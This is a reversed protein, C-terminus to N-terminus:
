YQADDQDYIIKTASRREAGDQKWAIMAQLGTLRFLLIIDYDIPYFTGRGFYKPQRPLPLHSLDIEITCLKTYNQTDVDKWKPTAVAGRYCWLSFSAVKFEDKSKSKRFFSKRFEKTESIQTDKPLIVEFFENIRRLGSISTFAKHLRAQHDPDDTEFPIHCFNGYTTNSVRTRMLYDHYFLIAGDSVANNSHSEPRITNIGHPLLTEHVKHFLWDSAAFEGILVVYSISKHAVKRQDLVAKIICEVPPEFFAAVDSGLLKLIGFRIDCSADNDRPRGFKIYHPEDPNLFKLKTTQDFCEVIDDLDELFRSNELRDRLFERARMTVFVSGRFHCQPAALEEFPDRAKRLNKGYCGIEITSKGADVIVVGDGNDIAGRPLCNQLTFRLNAEGQTVFSLRAHGVNTDPILKALAAAKRMQEQERDVWGDPHPLVFDIDDKVSEWLDIGNIHREQIYNSTCELLYALFAAFTEVVNKNLPPPPLENTVDRGGVQSQIHLRFWEAKAFYEDDKMTGVAKVKGSGDYYIILGLISLLNRYFTNLIM